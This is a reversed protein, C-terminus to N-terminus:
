SDDDDNTDAEVSDDTCATEYKAIISRWMPLWKSQFIEEYIRSGCVFGFAALMMPVSNHYAGFGALVAGGVLYGWMYSNTQGNAATSKACNILYREDDSFDPLPM